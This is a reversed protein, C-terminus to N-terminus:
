FKGSKRYLYYYKNIKSEEVALSFDILLTRRIVIM